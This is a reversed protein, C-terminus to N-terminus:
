SAPYVTSNPFLNRANKRCSLDDADYVSLKAKTKQSAKLLLENLESESLTNSDVNTVTSKLTSSNFQSMLGGLNGIKLDLRGRLKEALENIENSEAVLKTDGDYQTIRPVLVQPKNKMQIALAIKKMQVHGAPYDIGQSDEKIIRSVSVVTGFDIEYMSQYQSALWDGYNTKLNKDVETTLALTFISGQSKKASIIGNSPLYGNSLANTIQAHSMLSSAPNYQTLYMSIPQNLNSHFFPLLVNNDNWHKPIVGYQVLESADKCGSVVFSLYQVRRKDDLNKAKSNDKSACHLL